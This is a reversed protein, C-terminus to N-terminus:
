RRALYVVSESEADPPEFDFDGYVSVDSFGAAALRMMMEHPLHWRITM